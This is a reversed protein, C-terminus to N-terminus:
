SWLLATGITTVRKSSLTKKCFVKDEFPTKIKRSRVLVKFEKALEEIDPPLEELLEEFLNDQDKQPLQM